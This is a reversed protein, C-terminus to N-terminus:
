QGSGIAVLQLNAADGTASNGKLFGFNGATLAGFFQDYGPTVVIKSSTTSDMVWVGNWGVLGGLRAYRGGSVTGSSSSTKITGGRITGVASGVLGGVMSRDGGKVSGSASSTNIEGGRFHGVLGGVASDDGASVDGTASSGSVLAEASVQAGILGGASGAGLLTVAGTASSDKVTGGNAGILGGVLSGSGATVRGVAKSALVAGNNVGILGGASSGDRATIQGSAQSALVEGDNVGILGGAQSEAGATVDGFAESDRVRGRNVGVLGGAQSKVGAMVIGRASSTDIAGLNHGVLGGVQSRDGVRVNGGATAAGIRAKEGSYGVLGGAASDDGAIVDGMADSARVDGENSGILGGARSSAGALVKGMAMSAEVAGFNEGVLGGVRSNMGATVTGRAGSADVRGYNVGVLGGAKADRGARVESSSNSAHITGSNTGNFDNLGVLGGVMAGADDVQVSGASSSGSIRGTNRGVLGGAGGFRGRTVGSVVIQVDASSDSIVAESYPSLATLSEGALGGISATSRDGEVRGSVSSRDIKGGVNTGVLGGIVSAGTGAGSVVVDKAHVNSIVGTNTGALAGVFRWPFHGGSAGNVTVRDLTLNAIRGANATFLGVSGYANDVSLGGITNGLGDFVGNFGSEGGISRFRDRSTIANGLVYRGGLNAEINRLGTLDHIVTYDDGNARFAANAGSLTVQAKGNTLAHGSGSNLELRADRGTLTVKDHLRIQKAANVTLGAREGSAELSQKLDVDGQRSTLTLTNDGSWNVRGDVTLNGRTNTLAVQTTGLTRSLMDADLADDQGVGANAAEITWAGTRGGAARTDVQAERGVEVREGRTTVVGGAADTDQASADLRGALKVLGGDLTIKGNRANLGKAEITGTHNVVANLLNGAARATMLVEGGDAKLLGGNNVQADVAGDNVQLNLLGSGDFNVTFTNGAGLAVRGLKAQITGHNSVQAGLLAVSGGDAATITGDNVVAAGSSGTFRYKGDMFDADSIARTTAVLGGVNVQAGQGFVVGNPNVLFLRGNADLQGQIQSGNTGLVRNLAISTNTPQHFSVREGGGISFDQWNTILKDTHQNVSMSKGDSSTVIDGKGGVIESGSPLAYAGTAALGLLSVAAAIVRQGGSRKGRRRATEGAVAWSHRAEDWVLSYTKNM